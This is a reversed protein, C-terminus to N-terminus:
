EGVASPLATNGAIHDDPVCQGVITKATHSQMRVDTRSKSKWRIIKGVVFDNAVDNGSIECGPVIRSRGAPNSDVDVAPATTRRHDPGDNRLVHDAVFVDVDGEVGRGLHIDM